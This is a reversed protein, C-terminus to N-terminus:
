GSTYHSFNFFHILWHLPKGKYRKSFCFGWLIHYERPNETGVAM